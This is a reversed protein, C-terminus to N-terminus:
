NLNKHCCKRQQLHELLGSSIVLVSISILGVFFIPTCVSIVTDSKTQRAQLEEPTFGLTEALQPSSSALHPYMIFGAVMGSFGIIIMGVFTVLAVQLLIDGLKKM